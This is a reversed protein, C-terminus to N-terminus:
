ADKSFVAAELLKVREELDKKTNSKVETYLSVVYDALSLKALAADAKIQDLIDSNIRLSVRGDKLTQKM